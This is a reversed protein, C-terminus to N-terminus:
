RGQRMQKIMATAQQMGQLVQQKINNNQNQQPQASQKRQQYVQNYFSKLDDANKIQGNEYYPKALDLIPEKVGSITSKGKKLSEFAQKYFNETITGGLGAFASKIGVGEEPEAATGFTQRKRDRWKNLAEIRSQEEPPIQTRQIEEKGGTAPSNPETTKEQPQEQEGNGGLLGGAAFSLGTKLVKAPLEKNAINARSAAEDPRLTGNAAGAELQAKYSRQSGSEFRDTLYSLARNADIGYAAATAFYNKFKPSVRELAKLALTAPLYRLAGLITTM